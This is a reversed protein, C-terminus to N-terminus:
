RRLQCEKPLVHFSLEWVIGEIFEFLTIVTDFEFTDVTDGFVIHKLKGIRIPLDLLLALPYNRIPIQQVEKKGNISIYAELRPEGPFGVMEITKAFELCDFEDCDCGSAPSNHYQSLLDPLFNSLRTLIPYHVIMKFFHRLRSGSSLKLGYNLYPLPDNVVKDSSHTLIGEPDLEVLNM